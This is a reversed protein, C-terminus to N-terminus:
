FADRSLLFAGIARAIDVLLEGWVPDDESVAGAAALRAAEEPAGTAPAGLVEFRTPAEPVALGLLRGVPRVTALSLVLLECGPASVQSLARPSREVKM